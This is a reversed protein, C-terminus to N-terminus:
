ANQKAADPEGTLRPAEETIPGIRYNLVISSNVYEKYFQRKLREMIMKGNDYSKIPLLLAFQSATYHTITDGRRLGKRLVDQLLTMVDDLKMPDIPQGDISSVMVLGLFMTTNSRELSRVQLNYIEKFVAYECVFAGKASDNDILENRISDIDGDLVKGTQIIQKYFEQIGEPPKVGLYRFHLNTAHKYQMFAENNRNTKVLADMLMLHLREDFANVELALRCIRIIEEYDQAEKLLDLFQYVTTIYLNQLYVSRSVVWNEQSNGPLLDGMYLDMLQQFQERTEPTLEKVDRLDQSIREFEFMDIECGPMSVWRYAGRVTNICEGLGASCNSLIVRMRSVLTKLASEPNASEENPWLIEYLQTYPVAEQRSILLYQILTCGKKSKSLQDDIQKDNVLIEFRGLMRIKIQDM